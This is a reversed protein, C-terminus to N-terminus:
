ASVLLLANGVPLMDIISSLSTVDVGVTLM